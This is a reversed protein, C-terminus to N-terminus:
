EIFIFNDPVIGNWQEGYTVFEIFKIKGDTIDVEYGLGYELADIEIIENTSVASNEIELKLAENNPNDYIFNVYMGVGTNKRSSVKLFPIHEKILPYKTSLRELISFELRNLKQMM